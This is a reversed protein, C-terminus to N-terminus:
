VFQLSELRDLSAFLDRCGRHQIHVDIFLISGGLRPIKVFCVWNAITKAFPSLSGNFRRESLVSGPPFLKGAVARGPSTGEADPGLVVGGGEM